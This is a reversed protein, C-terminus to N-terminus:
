LIPTSPTPAIFGMNLEAYFGASFADAPSYKICFLISSANSGVGAFVGTIMFRQSVWVPAAYVMGYIM